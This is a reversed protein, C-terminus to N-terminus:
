RMVRVQLPKSESKLSPVYMPWVSAPLALSTGELEPYVVYRFEHRGGPLSDLFFAMREDHRESHVYWDWYDDLGVFRPDSRTERVEFGAPLRDEVIVFNINERNDIILRIEVEDGPSLNEGPKLPIYEMRWEKGSKRAMVRYLRREVSLGPVQTANEPPVLYDLAATLYLTGKPASKSLMVRNSGRKLSSAPIELSTQGGTIRGKEVTIRDVERDNLILRATYSAESEGTASVYDALAKVVIATGRTTNWWRGSRKRVLFEALPPALPDKPDRALLTELLMATTEVASGSWRWSYWWSLADEDQLYAGAGERKVRTKLDSLLEGAREKQGIGALADIYFIKESPTLQRWAAEAKKEVAPDIKGVLTLSRYAFPLSGFDAKKILEQLAKSGRDLVEQNVKVGSKGALALGYVVYATMYPDSADEKWWGWGGDEHQFDYLRKLSEDLVKPLKEAVDGDLLFGGKGTLGRVYVAPLFRSMTQEVCGYPFDVLSKLSENLSAALTPAITIKMSSGEALAEAPFDIATEGETGRLAINGLSERNLARPLVPVRLEMADGRGDAMARLRLLSLGPAGAGIRIDRRLAGGAAVKGSFNGDERLTLGEAEFRGTVGSERNTMNNIIGPIKLEDGQIFFRPPQLRAMVDLRAVFKGRGVGFDSDDTHGVATARWTTLNDPLVFEATAKGQSDTELVPAWFATDKFIKRVKLGKLGDDSLDATTKDKAGGGLYVRPFSNLTTVLHERVGRFFRYIDDRREPSVAYIAEDVVALSLEAARPAPGAPDVASLSLRVTDGPAYVPKDSSVSIGLRNAQYDVKLTKTRTYFRGDAVMTATVFVYPAYEKRVPIDVVEVSGSTGIIRRGYIERGELAILLSAGPAPNKVILRASEGSNYTKKDFEAGLERYSSDWAYGERWVWLWESAATKRGQDDAATATVRWYGPRPFTYRFEAQGAEDTFVDLRDVTRFSTVKTKKDFFQEEIVVSVKAKVPRDDWSRTRASFEVAKGPSALFSHARVDVSVLSPTVLFNASASVQRSALDTVDTEISYTLPVATQKTAVLIKGLGNEDTTVEGEGLFDSYGGYYGGDENEDGTEAPEEDGRYISYDPQSYIRYRVKAGAVPAGFYYRAQLSLEQTEGGVLFKEPAAMIVEFEPKRYELVKFSAQWNRNKTEARITYGGLSPNDPLKFEGSFSGHTNLKFDREFLTQDGSDTITAHVQDLDPLAYGEGVRKRVVGKFFVTQGTRYVPRETYIYGALAGEGAENPQASLDLCAPNGDRFGIIRVAQRPGGYEALGNGDTEKRFDPGAHEGPNKAFAKIETGELAKGNVLDVAYFLTGAPSTKAVIGLRTVFFLARATTKGSSAEILYIGPKMHTLQVTATKTHSRKERKLSVSFTSEKALASLPIAEPKGTDVSGDRFMGNSVSYLRIKASDIWLGRLRMKVPKVPLYVRDADDFSLMPPRFSAELKIATREGEKVEVNMHPDAVRDDYSGLTYFGPALGTLTIEGKDNTRGNRYGPEGSLYIEARGVPRRGAGSGATMKVALAGARRITIDGLDKKEGAEMSVYMPKETIWAPQEIRLDYGRADVGRIHFVGKGDTVSKLGTGVSVAIGPIPRGSLDVVRGSLEGGKNLPISLKVPEQGNVSVTGEFVAFGPCAVTYQYNGPKLRILFKGGEDTSAIVPESPKKRYTGIFKIVASGVPQNTEASHVSGDICGKRESAAAPTCLFILLTALVVPFLPFHRKM